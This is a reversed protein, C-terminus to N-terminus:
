PTTAGVANPLAGRNTITSDKGLEYLIDDAVFFCRNKNLTKAVVMGRIFKASSDAFEVLGPTPFLSHLTKNSERKTKDVPYWNVTTQPNVDLYKHHYSGGIVDLEM